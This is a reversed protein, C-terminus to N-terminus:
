NQIERWPALGTFTFFCSLFSIIRQAKADKRSACEMNDPNAKKEGSKRLLRPYLSHFFLFAL